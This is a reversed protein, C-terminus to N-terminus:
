AAHKLLSLKFQATVNAQAVPDTECWIKGTIIESVHGKSTLLPHKTMLQKYSTHLVEYEARVLRVMHWNLKANGLVAARKNVRFAHYQNSSQTVLELNGPRNDHRIGNLHNIVLDKHLPGTFKRYVVRHVTLKKYCYHVLKYGDKNIKGAERWIGNVSVKGTVCIDTWVTGDSRIDYHPDKLIEEIYGDNAAILQGSRGTKM